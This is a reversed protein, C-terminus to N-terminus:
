IGLSYIDLRRDTVHMRLSFRGESLNIQTPRNVSGGRRMYSVRAFAAARCIPRLSGRGRAYGKLGGPCIVSPHRHRFSEALTSTSGSRGSSTHRLPDRPGQQTLLDLARPSGLGIKVSIRITYIKSRIDLTTKRTWSRGHPMVSPV